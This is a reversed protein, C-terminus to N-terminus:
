GAEMAVAGSRASGGMGVPSGAVAAWRFGESDDQLVRRSKRPPSGPKRSWTKGTETM